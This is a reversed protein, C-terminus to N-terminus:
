KFQSAWHEMRQDENKMRWQLLRQCFDLLIPTSEPRGAISNSEVPDVVLDFLLPPVSPDAFQVYKHSDDRVVWLLCEDRDMGPIHRYDKEYHIEIKGAEGSGRIRGALSTGQVRDPVELGMLELITPTIDISEAFGDLTKGRTADAARSPDRVIL